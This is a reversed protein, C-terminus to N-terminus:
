FPRADPLLLIDVLEVPWDQPFDSIEEGQRRADAIIARYGLDAFWGIFEAASVGSVQQLQLPFLEALIVPRSAEITAKAGSMVRMEAGEVDIKIVDVPGLNLADLPLLKIPHSEVGPLAGAGTLFSHGPNRDDPKWSLYGDRMASDLGYDHVTVRAGLENLAVSRRLYAVTQQRPEFAHIHGRPGIITSAVMTFWGINAGIDLFVSDPSLYKRLIATIAPSYNDRLCCLSVYDDNLDLWLMRQGNLLESIVWRGDAKQTERLWKFESLKLLVQRLVRWNPISRMHQAIVREDELERGLVYRYGWIVEDRSLM